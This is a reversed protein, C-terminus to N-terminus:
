ASGKLAKVANKLILELTAELNIQELTTRPIEVM